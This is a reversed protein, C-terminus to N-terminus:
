SKRQYEYKCVNIYQNMKKNGDTVVEKLEFGNKELVKRSRHNREFPDASITRIGKENELYEILGKIASSAYGQNWYDKGIFYAIVAKTKDNNDYFAGISGVVKGTREIALYLDKSRIANKIFEVAKEQTFPKPFGDNMNEEVSDNNGIFSLDAADKLTWSRLTINDLRICIKM